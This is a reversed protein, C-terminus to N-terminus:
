ATKRRKKNQWRWYARKEEQSFQSFPKKPRVYGESNWSESSGLKQLQEAIKSMKKTKQSGHEDEDEKEENKFFESAAMKDPIPDKKEETKPKATEPKEMEPKERVVRTEIVRKLSKKLGPCVVESTEPDVLGFTRMVLAYLVANELSSCGFDSFKVVSKSGDEFHVTVESVGDVVKVVAPCFTRDFVRSRMNSSLLNLEQQFESFANLIDNFMSTVKKRMM